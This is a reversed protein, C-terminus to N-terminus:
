ELLRWTRRAASIALCTEAAAVYMYTQQSMCTHICRDTLFYSASSFLALVDAKRCVFM